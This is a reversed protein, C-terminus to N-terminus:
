KWYNEMLEAVWAPQRVEGKTDFEKFVPKIDLVPTGDIADLLKVWLTRGEREILQVTCLGIQNPRDKKRQAFIGVKPWNQNGRPHGSYAIKQPNVQNFYYIIELHSFAELGDFADDPIDPALTIASITDGWFDDTPTERNNNVTAVPKLLIDM